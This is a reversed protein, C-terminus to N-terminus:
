ADGRADADLMARVEPARSAAIDRPAGIAVFGGGQFFGIRDGLRMAQVPDTTALVVSMGYHKKASRILDHIQSGTLPDLGATPEDYLLIEPELALARAMGLRKQMGGSMESIRLDAANELGVDALARKVRKEASAGKLGELERLPFLLNDACSLSDFLGNRQFAFGVKRHFNKRDSGRLDRLDRGDFSVAGSTPDLLGVLLRLWVSKGEGSPGLVVFTEGAALSWTLGAVLPRGGAFAFRLESTSLM